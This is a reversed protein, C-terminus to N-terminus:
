LCSFKTVLPTLSPNVRYLRIQGFFSVTSPHHPELAFKAIISAADAKPRIRRHGLKSDEGTDTLFIKAWRLIELALIQTTLLNIRTKGSCIQRWWKSIAQPCLWNPSLFFCIWGAHFFQESPNFFFIKTIM